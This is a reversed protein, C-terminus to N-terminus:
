SGSLRVLESESLGVRAIEAALDVAVRQSFEPKLDAVWLFRHRSTNYFAWRGGVQRADVTRSTGGLFAHSQLLFPKKQPQLRILGESEPNKVVLTHLAKDADAVLLPLFLFARAEEPTLRVSDCRPQVCILFQKRHLVITGLRLVRRPRRYLTRVAMRMGFLDASANATDAANTFLHAAQKRIKKLESASLKEAVVHRGLLEDLGLGITLMREVEEETLAVPKRLASGCRLPDTRQRADLLWDRIVPMDAYAAVDSDNLVSAIEAAVMDVLHGEADEPFSSAVRHGLYGVDLDRQLAQLIRHTDSRLAALAALAVAPVLGDTLQAFEQALRRPLDTEPVSRAALAPPLQGSIAKSFATLRFNDRALTMGDDQKAGEPLGLDVRIQEVIQELEPHGTYIAIVRLRRRDGATDQALVSKVLKRAIDGGDRHLEWDLILLDSRKATKLVRGETETRDDRLPALVSCVVGLDAFADILARASLPHLQQASALHDEPPENLTLDERSRVRRSEEQAASADVPPAPGLGEDDVILATELFEGVVKDIHQRFANM